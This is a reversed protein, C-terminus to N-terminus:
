GSWDAGPAGDTLALDARAIARAKREFAADNDLSRVQWVYWTTGDDSCCFEAGNREAIAERNAIQVATLPTKLRFGTSRENM